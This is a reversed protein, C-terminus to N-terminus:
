VEQGPYKVEVFEVGGEGDVVIARNKEILKWECKKYTTPESAVIVHRGHEEVGKRARPNRGEAKM